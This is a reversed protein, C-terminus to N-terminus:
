KKRTAKVEAIDRAKAGARLASEETRFFVEGYRDRLPVGYILVGFHGQGSLTISLGFYSIVNPRSRGTGKKRKRIM